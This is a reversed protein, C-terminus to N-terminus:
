EPGSIVVHLQGSSPTPLNAAHIRYDIHFSLAKDPVDLSLYMRDLKEKFGHNLKKVRCEVDYSHTRTIIPSSLNPPPGIAADLRPFDLRPMASFNFGQAFREQISLPKEPPSPQYPTEPFNKDSYLSFGDPFHLHVVIESAPNTGSNSILIELGCTRKRLNEHENLKTLFHPYSDFFPKLAANYREIEERSYGIHIAAMEAVTHEITEKRGARPPLKGPAAMLPYTERLHEIETAIDSASLVVAKKLEFQAVASKDEFELSLIPLSHKISKIEAELAKIKKVDPDEDDPLRLESPPQLTDIGHSKAKLKLGVDATVLVCRTAANASRFELISALLYDDQLDKRLRHAIFDIGPDAAIFEVEVSPRITVRSQESFISDIEALVSQARKKLKGSTGSDKKGNLERLVTPPFLILVSDTQSLNPWDVESFRRYHLLVNTDLFLVATRV